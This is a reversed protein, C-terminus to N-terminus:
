VDRIKRWLRRGSRPAFVERGYGKKEMEIYGNKLTNDKISRSNNAKLKANQQKRLADTLKGNNRLNAPPPQCARLAHWNSDRHPLHISFWHFDTFFWHYIMSFWHFDIFIWSCILSFWQFILLILSFWHFVIFFWYVIMSFVHVIWSFETFVLLFWHFDLSFRQFDIFNM